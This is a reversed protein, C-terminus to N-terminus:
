ASAPARLSAPQTSFFNPMASFGLAQRLLHEAVFPAGREPRRPNDAAHDHDADLDRMAPLAMGDGHSMKQINTAATTRSPKQGYGRGGAAPM